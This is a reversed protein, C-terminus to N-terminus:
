ETGYGITEQKVEKGNLIVKYSQPLESIKTWYVVHEIYTEGAAIQTEEIEVVFFDGEVKAKMEQRKGNPIKSYIIMSQYGSHTTAGTVYVESKVQELPIPNGVGMYHAIQEPYFPTPTLVLGGDNNAVTTGQWQIHSIYNAEGKDWKVEVELAYKGSELKLKSFDLNKTSIDQQIMEGTQMDWINMKTSSPNNDFSFIVKSDRDIHKIPTSQVISAPASGCAIVSKGWEEWSYNGTLMKTKEKNINIYGNPPEPIHQNYTDWSVYIVSILLIAAIWKGVKKM